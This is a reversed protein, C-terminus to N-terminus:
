ATLAILLIGKSLSMAFRGIEPKAGAEIYLAIRRQRPSSRKGPLSLTVPPDTM